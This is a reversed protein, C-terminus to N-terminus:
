ILLGEIERTRVLEIKKGYSFLKVDTPFRNSVLFGLDVDMQTIIDLFEQAEKIVCNNYYKVVFKKIFGSEKKAIIDVFDKKKLVQIKYGSGRLITKFKKIVENKQEINEMREKPNLFDQFDEKKMRIYDNDGLIYVISVDDPIIIERLTGKVWIENINKIETPIKIGCRLLKKVDDKDKFIFPEYNNSLSETLRKFIREDEVKRREILRYIIRIDIGITKQQGILCAHTLNLEKSLDMREITRELDNVLDPYKHSSRMALITTYPKKIIEYNYAKELKQHLNILEKNTLPPNDNKEM